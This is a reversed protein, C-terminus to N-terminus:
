DGNSSKPIILQPIICSKICARREKSIRGGHQSYASQAQQQEKIESQKIFSCVNEDNGGDMPQQMQNSEDPQFNRRRNRVFIMQECASRRRGSEEGTASTALEIAKSPKDRSHLSSSRWHNNGGGFRHISGRLRSSPRFIVQQQQQQHHQQHHQQQDRQQQDRKTSKDIPLAGAASSVPSGLRPMEVVQPTSLSRALTFPKDDVPTCVNAAEFENILDEMTPLKEEQLTELPEMKERYAEQSRNAIIEEVLKQEETSSSNYEAIAEFVKKKQESGEQKAHEVESKVRKQKEACSSKIERMVSKSALVHEEVQAMVKEFSNNREVDIAERKAMRSEVMAGIQETLEDNAIMLSACSENQTSSWKETESDMQKVLGSHNGVVARFTDKHKLLGVFTQRWKGLGDPLREKLAHSATSKLSSLSGKVGFCKERLLDVESNLQEEQAGKVKALETEIQRKFSELSEELRLSQGARFEDLKEALFLVASSNNELQSAFGSYCENFEVLLNSILQDISNSSEDILCNSEEEFKGILGCVAKLQNQIADVFKVTEGRSSQVTENLVSKQEVSWGAVDSALGTAVKKVREQDVRMVSDMFEKMTHLLADLKKEVALGMKEEKCDAVTRQINDVAKGVVETWTVCLERIGETTKKGCDGVRKFAALEEKENTELDVLKRELSKLHGAMKAIYENLRGCRSQLGEKMRNLRDVLFRKKELRANTVSLIEQSARLEQAKRELAERAIAHATAERGLEDRLRAAEASRAELDKRLKVMEGSADLLETSQCNIRREMENFRELPLFVGTKERSAQLEVKLKEIEQNLERIMVRKTMKQNVEPRNRINKARFAYDLTSLTEELCLSSPSITAMICTKTRGGLSDQLLRTLKSDRYPVYSSHEVLANIVRGLTLLSQNIMGAEKARDKVANAGSRQINESGALDVLNLKGIKIVDEGDLNTEKMHIMVSFICHSRSSQRNLNTEATRRKKVAISLINFIDQPNNVPIEELRDVSLGKKAASDEFIRLAQKDDNLLDNLEENYIELYSVRVSYETGQNELATFIHQVARPIIGADGSLQSTVVVPISSAQSSGADGSLPKNGAFLKQYIDGEMTYTKGTGTQGYAFITCNFGQLVENVIPLIYSTFLECQTAYQNCVGDFTFTKSYSEVKRGPLTQTVFVEKAEPKAAVVQFHSPDKKELESM